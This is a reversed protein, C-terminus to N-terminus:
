RSDPTRDKEELAHRTLAIERVLHTLHADLRRLRLYFALFGVMGALIACYFVFDAGRAIGLRRAVFVTWEPRAIFAGAAIWLALWLFGPGPALRKRAVARAVVLVALLAGVTGLIQFLNM